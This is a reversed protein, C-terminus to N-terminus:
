KPEKFKEINSLTLEYQVKAVALPLSSRKIRPFSENVEYKDVTILNFVYNDYVDNYTYGVQKLKEFFIEKDVDLPILTSIELVLKNLSVGDFSPSMKEFQYVVLKGPHESDLQEISSIKVTNKSSNISKIEFWDNDFSFDKHTPEPGSWGNLGKTVGFIKFAEDKLFSLEGLLGLIESETLLKTAGYFMKKWSNYRNVIEAYGDEGRFTSTQNIIDECFTLFLNVNEKSTYCFLLSNYTATKVQKIELVGSGIIKNPKFNGNFRLTPYGDESKGLYLELPHTDNVRVYQSNSLVSNLKLKIEEKNM